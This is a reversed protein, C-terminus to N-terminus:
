NPVFSNSDRSAPTWKSEKPRSVLPLGATDREHETGPLLALAELVEYIAAPEQGSENMVQCVALRAARDQGPGPRYLPEDGNFLNLKNPNGM